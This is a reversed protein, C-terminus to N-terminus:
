SCGATLMARAVDLIFVKRKLDKEPNLAGDGAAM